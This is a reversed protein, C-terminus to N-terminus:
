QPGPAGAMIWREILDITEAKQKVPHGSKMKQLLPSQPNGPIVYKMVSYYTYLPAKAMVGGPGHCSACGQFIVPEVDNTYNPAGGETTDALLTRINDRIDGSPNLQLAATLQERAGKQNLRQYLLFIGYNLRANIYKPDMAIAKQYAAEAQDPQGCYYLATGMDTEVGVQNPKLDLAKQYVAAAKAFFGKADDPNGGDRLSTGYDFYANGLNTLLDANGPNQAVKQEMGKIDQLPDQQVYSHMPPKAYYYGYSFAGTLAVAALVVLIARLIGAKNLM